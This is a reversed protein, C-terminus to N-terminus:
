CSAGFNKKNRNSEPLNLLARVIRKAILKAGPKYIDTKAGFIQEFFTKEYDHQLNYSTYDIVEVTHGPFRKELEKSLAYCQMFAGYNQAKHFTLIGIKM